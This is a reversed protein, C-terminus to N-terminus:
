DRFTDTASPATTPTDSRARTRTNAAETRTGANARTDPANTRPRTRTNAAETRTGANACTDPANTRTGTNARTSAKARAGTAKTPTGTEAGTTKTRTHLTSLCCCNAQAFCIIVECISKEFGKACLRGCTELATPAPAFNARICVWLVWLMFQYLPSAGRNKL